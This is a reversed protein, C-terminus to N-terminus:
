INITELAELEEVTKVPRDSALFDKVRQEATNFGHKKHVHCARCAPIVNGYVLGKIPDVMEIISYSYEQCYACLGKLDSTLSLWQTLLLSYPLGEKEAQKSSSLIRDWERLRDRSWCKKCLGYNHMAEFNDGCLVCTSTMFHDEKTSHLSAKSAM